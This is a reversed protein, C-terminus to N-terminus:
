VLGRDVLGSSRPGRSDGIAMQGRRGIRGKGRRTDGAIGRTPKNCRTGNQVSWSGLHAIEGARGVFGPGVAVAM